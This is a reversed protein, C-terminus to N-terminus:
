LVSAPIRAISVTDSKAIELEFLTGEYGTKAYVATVASSGDPDHLGRSCPGVEAGEEPPRYQKERLM